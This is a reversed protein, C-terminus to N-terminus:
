YIRKGSEDFFVDIIDADRRKGDRRQGYRQQSATASSAPRGDSGYYRVNDSTSYYRGDPRGFPSGSSGSRSSKFGAGGERPDMGGSSGSYSPRSMSAQPGENWGGSDGGPMLPIRLRVVQLIVRKSISTSELTTFLLVDGIGCDGGERRVQSGM